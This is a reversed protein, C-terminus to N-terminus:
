APTNLSRDSWPNVGEPFIGGESVYLCAAKNRETADHPNTPSERM